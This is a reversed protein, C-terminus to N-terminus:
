SRPVPALLHRYRPDSPHKEILGNLDGVGDGDSDYFSRVFVEYFISDNWWPLGATGAVLTGDMGVPSVPVEERYEAPMRVETLTHTPLLPTPSPVPGSVPTATLIATQLPTPNPTMDRAQCALLACSLLLLCVTYSRTKM